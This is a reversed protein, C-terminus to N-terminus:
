PMLLSHEYDERGETLSSEGNHDWQEKALSHDPRDEVDMWANIEYIVDFYDPPCVLFHGNLPQQEKEM